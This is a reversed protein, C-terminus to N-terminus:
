PAKGEQHGVSWLEDTRMYEDRGLGACRTLGQANLWCLKSRVLLGDFGKRKLKREGPQLGPDPRERVRLSRRELVESEIWRKKQSRQRGLLSVDLRGGEARAVITLPAATSNRFRFDSNSSRAVMADRGPAVYAAAPDYLSHNARELVELGALLVANYLGTSVQCIGGGDSSVVRGSAYSTGVVFKDLGKGMAGNFSFVQGPKLVTGDVLSAAVSVNVLAGEEWPQPRECTFQSLERAPLAAALAPLVALGATAAFCRLRIM